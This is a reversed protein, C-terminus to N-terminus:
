IIEKVPYNKFIDISLIQEKNLKDTNYTVIFINPMQFDVNEAGANTLADEILFAHGPCPISVKLNIIAFGPNLDSSLTNRTIRTDANALCGTLIALLFIFLLIIKNM